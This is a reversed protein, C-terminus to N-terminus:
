GEGSEEREAQPLFFGDDSDDPVRLPYPSGCAGLSHSEPIGLSMEAEQPAVCSGNTCAQYEVVVSIKGTAQPTIRIKQALVDGNEVLDIEMGFTPDMEKRGGQKIYPEGVLEVGTGSVTLITPNPGGDYPGLGYTHWGEEIKATVAVEYLGQELETIQSKWRVPEGKDFQAWGGSVFALLFFNNHIINHIKEFNNCQFM